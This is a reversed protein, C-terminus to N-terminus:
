GRLRALAAEALQPWREAHAVPVCVWDKMPRRGGSPDFLAAGPLALAAQHETTGAMLKFAVAEGFLCAFAKSGHKLSPKGFVPATSVGAPGLEEALRDFAGAAGVGGTV